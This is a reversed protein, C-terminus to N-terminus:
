EAERALKGACGNHRAACVEWAAVVDWAWVSLDNLGSTAPEPLPNCPMVCEIPLVPAPTPAPSPLSSCGSALTLCFVFPFLRLPKSM